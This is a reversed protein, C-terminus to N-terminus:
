LPSLVVLLAPHTNQSNVYWCFNAKVLLTALGGVSHLGALFITFVLTQHELLEFLCKQNVSLYM